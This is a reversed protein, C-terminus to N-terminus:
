ISSVVVAFNLNKIFLYYLPSVYFITTSVHIVRRRTIAAFHIYFVMHHTCHNGGGVAAARERNRNIYPLLLLLLVSIPNHAGSIHLVTGVTVATGHTVVTVM